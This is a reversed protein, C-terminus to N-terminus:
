ILVFVKFPFFFRLYILVRVEIVDDHQYDSSVSPLVCNLSDMYNEKNKKYNPKKAIGQDIDNSIHFEGLLEVGSHTDVPVPDLDPMSLFQNPFGGSDNRPEIDEEPTEIIEENKIRFVLNLYM